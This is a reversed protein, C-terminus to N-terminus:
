LRGRDVCFLEDRAGGFPHRRGVPRGSDAHHPSSHVTERRRSRGCFDRSGRNPPVGAALVPIKSSHALNVLGAGGLHEFLQGRFIAGPKLFLEDRVPLQEGVEVVMSVALV